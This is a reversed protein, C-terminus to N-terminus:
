RAEICYLNQHTRIFIQGGSFAPSSDLSEGLKNEALVQCGEPRPELVFTTGEKNAVYLRGAAHVMSSWTNKPSKREEWKKDGSRAELCWAIGPENLIYIYDGVVVGSGVRQPNRQTHHWLRHTETVDGKGGGKVAMAPGGYGCM